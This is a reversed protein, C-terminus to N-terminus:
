PWRKNENCYEFLFQITEDNSWHKKNKNKNKTLLYQDLSKKVYKNAALKIYLDDKKSTINQKQIGLWHGIRVNKFSEWRRPHRKNANCYEFLLQNKEDPTIKKNKNKNKKNEDDCKPDMEM